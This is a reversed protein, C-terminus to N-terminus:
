LIHITLEPQSIGGYTTTAALAAEGLAAQFSFAPDFTKAGLSKILNNAEDVQLAEVIVKFSAGAHATWFSLLSADVKSGGIYIGANAIGTAGPPISLPDAMFSTRHAHATEDYVIDKIVAPGGEGALPTMIVWQVDGMWSKKEILWMKLAVIGPLAGTNQVAWKTSLTFQYPPVPIAGLDGLASLPYRPKDFIRGRYTTMM